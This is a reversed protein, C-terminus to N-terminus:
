RVALRRSFLARNLPEFFVLLVIWCGSFELLEGRRTSNALHVIAALALYALIHYNRPIPLAIGDCIRQLRPWKRYLLPIALFYCVMVISLFLGFVLKNIKTDGFQLNHLNMEGQSNYRLFFDPPRFDIVSGLIRQGWSIEEMFGLAFIVGFCLLGLLFKWQRFPWLIYSRYFNMASGVLLCLATAWEVPGDERVWVGEFYALDTHSFFVGALVTAFIFIFTAQELIKRPYSIPM